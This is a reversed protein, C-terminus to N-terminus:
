RKSKCSNALWKSKYNPDNAVKAEHCFHFSASIQTSTNAIVTLTMSYSSEPKFYSLCSSSSAIAALEAREALACFM